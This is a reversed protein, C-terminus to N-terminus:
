QVKALTPILATLAPSFDTPEQYWWLDTSGLAGSYNNFHCMKEFKYWGASGDAFVENGGAPLKNKNPHPPVNGYEVYYAGGSVAGPMNGVWSQGVIKANLDAGVVWYPKSTALKVPSHAEGQPAYSWYTIGGMYEYGLIYQDNGADYYPLGTPRNPCTWVNQATAGNQIKLYSNINTVIGANIALQVYNNGGGGLSKNAPPVKDQYDGAYLTAGFGLQRLNGLCQIRKAREKASALAPLLMAALIAIIAIVVLLEILTFGKAARRPVLPTENKM